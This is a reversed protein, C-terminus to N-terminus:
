IPAGVRYAVLEKIQEALVLINLGESIMQIIGGICDTRTVPVIPNFRLESSLPIVFERDGELVGTTRTVCGFFDRMREARSCDRDIPSVWLNGVVKIGVCKNVGVVILTHLLDNLHNAAQILIIRGIRFNQISRGEDSIPHRIM